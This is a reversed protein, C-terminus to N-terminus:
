YWFLTVLVSCIFIWFSEWEGMAIDDYWVKGLMMIAEVASSAVSFPIFLTWWKSLILTIVAYNRTEAATICYKFLFHILDDLSINDSPSQPLLSWVLFSCYKWFALHELGTSRLYRLGHVRHCCVACKFIGWGEM